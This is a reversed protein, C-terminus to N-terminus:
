FFLYNIATFFQCHFKLLFMSNLKKQFENFIFFIRFLKNLFFGLFSDYRMRM